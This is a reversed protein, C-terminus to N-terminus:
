VAVAGDMGPPGGSAPERTATMLVIGAVIAAIGVMQGRGISVGLIARELLAPVLIMLSNSCPVVVVARSRLFAVQTLVLAATGTLMALYIFPSAFQHWFNGHSVTMSINGWIMAIGILSGALSGFVTGHFRGTVLTYTVPLVWLGLVSGSWLMLDRVDFGAGANRVGHLGSVTATGIVVLAVGALEVAGIREHLVLASFVVLAVLGAGTMSAIASPQDTRALALSYFIGASSTMLWGVFWVALDRRHPARFADRGHRLVQVKMKQIGKGVNLCTAGIAGLVLGAAFDPDTM